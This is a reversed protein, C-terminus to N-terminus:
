AAGPGLTGGRVFVTRVNNFLPTEAEGPRSLGRNLTLTKAGQWGDFPVSVPCERGERVERVFGGHTELGSLLALLASGGLCLM